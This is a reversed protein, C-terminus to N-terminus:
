FLSPESTWGDNMLVLVARAQKKPQLEQTLEPFAAKVADDNAWAPVDVLSSTYVTESVTQGMANSPETFQVVEDVQRHGVCFPLKSPDKLAKKGADTLVYEKGPVMAQMPGFGDQVQKPKSQLLGVKELVDFPASRQEEAPRGERTAVDVPYGGTETKAAMQALFNFRLETCNKELRENIAKAFNSKSADKASGCAALTSVTLLALAIHRLQM